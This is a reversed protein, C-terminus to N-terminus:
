KCIGQVHPRSRAHIARGFLVFQALVARVQVPAIIHGAVAAATYVAAVTKNAEALVALVAVVELPNSDALRLVAQVVPVKM